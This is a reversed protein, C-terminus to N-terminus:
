EFIQDGLKEIIVWSILSEKSIYGENKLSLYLASGAGKENIEQKLEDADLLELCQNIREQFVSNSNNLFADFRKSLENIEAKSPTEVKVDFEYRDGYKSKIWTASGLCRLRGAVMIAMKDSLAEAEEMSHTTLIVSSNRQKINGIVRWMKKRTEPDMGASPEDLFVVTPNGILAIAVSLKRKNGGSYTGSVQDAYQRLDMQDLIEEVLENIRDKPIGKIDSYLTLHERATLLESLADFQPCYGVLDRIKELETTVNYGCIFASGETPAIEGTLIKFTTTKGAGNVGLLAFCEQENVNFNVDEVAPFGENVGIRFVKRLSRVNVQKEKPDINNAIM